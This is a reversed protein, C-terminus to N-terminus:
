GISDLMTLFHAPAVIPIGEFPDLSLLDEDGSVIVDAHGGVAVELFMDDRPDRCVTIRRQPSVMESRLVVLRIVARLVPDNIGYKARLHPRNLVDVLEDLTARSILLSYDRRRLRQVVPGVSGSPKIVARVLINTDVVARM